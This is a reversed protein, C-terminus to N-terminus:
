NYVVSFYGQSLQVPAGGSFSIAKFDFNGRIRRTSTNHELIILKGSESGLFTTLNPNYQGIYTGGLFNFDYTGPVTGTPMVLNVSKILNQDSGTILLQGAIVAANISEAKWDAGDIKVRFTDTSNAPPLTSVYPIKDFVGETLILQKQDLERFLKMKFTGSITKNVRDIQTVTVTGGAHSTDLGEYSSYEHPDAASSDLFAAFELSGQDLIYTGTISDALFITFIKNDSSVGTIEIFGAIISASVSKTAVWQTGDVKMRFSGTSASPGGTVNEDSLEKQCGIISVIVLAAACLYTLRM